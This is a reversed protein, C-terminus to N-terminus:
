SRGAPHLIPFAAFLGQGALGTAGALTGYHALHAAIARDLVFTGLLTETAMLVLFTTGVM